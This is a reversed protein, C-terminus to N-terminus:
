SKYKIAHRTNIYVTLYKQNTVDITTEKNEKSRTPGMRGVKTDDLYTKRKNTKANGMSNKHNNHQREPRKYIAVMSTM